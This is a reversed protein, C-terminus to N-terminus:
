PPSKNQKQTLLYFSLCVATCIRFTSQLFVFQCCCCCCCFLDSLLCPLPSFSGAQTKLSWTSLDRSVTLQSRSPSLSIEVCVKFSPGQWPFLTHSSRRGPCVCHAQFRDMSKPCVALATQHVCEYQYQWSRIIRDDVIDVGGGATRHMNFADCSGTGSHPHARSRSGVTRLCVSPWHASYCGKPACGSLLCEREPTHEKSPGM